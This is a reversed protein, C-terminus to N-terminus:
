VEWQHYAVYDKFLDNSKDIPAKDHASKVKWFAFPYTQRYYTENTDHKTIQVVGDLMGHKKDEPVQGPITEVSLWSRSRRNGCEIYYLKGDISHTIYAPQFMWRIKQLLNM